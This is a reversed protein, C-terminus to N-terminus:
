FDFQYRIGGMVQFSQVRFNAWRQYQNNAINNARAFISLQDSFRYGLHANADFFSDLTVIASPFDQPLTNPAAQSVLDEREGTYFLNAGFYWTDGVKGNLFLSGRATPLNWAPNGTETSYDLLEANIGLTFDREIDLSLEGFLGFTKVDDYFVDFSNGYVYGPDDDTRFANEPNLKFLPLRNEASYSGKVNYSLNSSLQGKLGVFADYQRDTPQIILTPSIFPNEQALEYFSNQHLEGQIGGYAIALEDALRYSATVNPYLYFNTDSAENDLGVVIRAGLNLTLDDQDFILSPAVGAQFLSYDIGATNDVSNLSANAFTGNVYDAHLTVTLEQDSVPFLFAPAVRIRNEGSDWGDWFRRLLIEGGTIASEAVEFRAVGEVNYYTQQEEIQPLLAEDVIGERVGYWNYIQHGGALRATWNLDREKSSLTLAIETDSLNTDFPTDDIDGRSSFHNIAVDFRKDGRDFDRSTYFDFAANNFNGLAFSAFSNYIAERRAKKVPAARGKEPSFTSAVPVSFISYEIKKKQLVVSDTAKPITNIKNADAVTPTYSKVVTVTETGITDDQASLSTLGLLGILVISWVRKMDM